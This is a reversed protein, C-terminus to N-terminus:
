TISWNATDSILDVSTYRVPMVVTPDNDITQASTTDITVIGVGVNKVTYLNTNGTTADPMTLTLTGSCLYVYDSGSASDAVQSASISQISRTSGGGGGSASFTVDVRKTTNNTATTITVNTGAKLNIDTYKTLPNVNGVTILRNM